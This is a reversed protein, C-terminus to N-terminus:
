SEDRVRWLKSGQIGEFCVGKYSALAVGYNKEEVVMWMWPLILGVNCVSFLFFIRHERVHKRSSM